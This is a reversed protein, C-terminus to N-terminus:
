LNYFVSNPTVMNSSKIVRNPTAKYSTKFCNLPLAMKISSKCITALGIKKLSKLDSSCHNSLLLSIIQNHDLQIELDM